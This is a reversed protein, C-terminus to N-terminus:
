WTKNMIPPNPVAVLVGSRDDKFITQLHKESVVTYDRPALIYTDYGGGPNASQLPPFETLGYRDRYYNLAEALEWSAYVLKPRRKRLLKGVTRSSSDFPWEGYVSVNWEAAYLAVLALLPLAGVLQLWRLKDLTKFFALILLTFLPIFYVATRFEPYKLGLTYHGCILLLINIGFSLGLFRTQVSHRWVAIVLIPVLWGIWIAVPVTIYHDM